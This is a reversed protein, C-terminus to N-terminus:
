RSSRPKTFRLVLGTATLVLAAGLCAAARTLTKSLESCWHAHGQHCAFEVPVAWSYFYAGGALAIGALVFASLAYGKRRAPMQM